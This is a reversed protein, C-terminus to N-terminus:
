LCVADDSRGSTLAREDWVGDINLFLVQERHSLIFSRRGQTQLLLDEVANLFVNFVGMDIRLDDFINTENRQYFHTIFHVWWQEERLNDTGDLDEPRM